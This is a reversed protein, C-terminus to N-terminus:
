IFIINFSKGTLQRVELRDFVYRLEGLYRLDYPPQLRYLNCLCSEQINQKWPTCYGTTRVYDKIRPPKRKCSGFTSINTAISLSTRDLCSLYTAISHMCIPPLRHFINTVTNVICEKEVIVHPTDDDITALIGSKRLRLSVNDPLCICEFSMLECVVCRGSEITPLVLEDEGCSGRPHCNGSFILDGSGEDILIFNEPVIPVPISPIKTLFAIFNENRSAAILAADIIRSRILSDNQQLGHYRLDDYFDIEDAFVESFYSRFQHKAADELFQFYEAYFTTTGNTADDISSRVIQGCMPLYSKLYGHRIRNRAIIHDFNSSRRTTLDRHSCSTDNIRPHQDERLM